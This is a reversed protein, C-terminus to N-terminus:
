SRERLLRLLSLANEVAYGRADNNCYICLRRANGAAVSLRDAWDRLQESSYRSAYLAEPGHLRAYIFNSTVVPPSTFGPMDILCVGVGGAGLAAYVDPHWWSDHRFEVAYRLHGPLRQLFGSLLADDRKLPPPLQWLM